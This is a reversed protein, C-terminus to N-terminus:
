SLIEASLAQEAADSDADYGNSRDRDHAGVRVLEVM